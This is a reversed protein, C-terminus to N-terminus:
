NSLAGWNLERLFIAHKFQEQPSVALVRQGGGKQQIHRVFDVHGV